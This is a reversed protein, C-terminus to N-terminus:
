YKEKEEENQLSIRKEYVHRRTIGGDARATEEVL